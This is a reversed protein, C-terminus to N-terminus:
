RGQPVIFAAYAANNKDPTIDVVYVTYKLESSGGEYLDFSVDNENAISKQQLSSCIFLARQTNFITEKVQDVNEFRQM